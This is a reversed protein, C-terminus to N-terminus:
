LRWKGSHGGIRQPWWNFRYNFACEENYSLIVLQQKMISFVRSTRHVVLPCVGILGCWLLCNLLTIAHWIWMSNSIDTCVYCVNVTEFFLVQTRFANQIRNPRISSLESTVGRDKLIFASLVAPM